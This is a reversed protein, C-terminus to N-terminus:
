YPIIKAIKLMNPIIATYLSKNFIFCLPEVSWNICHKIVKPSIEDAGCSKSPNLSSSFKVIEYVSTPKFFFSEQPPDKPLFSDFTCNSNPIKSAIDKGISLFYTNFEEVINKMTHVKINGNYMTTPLKNKKSKGIIDNIQNWIKKSNGKIRDFVSIYYDNKAIRLLGTLKNKFGNYKKKSKQCPNRLYTTYLRHKKQISKLLGNTLWPKRM